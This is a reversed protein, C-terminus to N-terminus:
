GRGGPIVPTENEGLGDSSTIVDEIMFKNIEIEPLEFEKM